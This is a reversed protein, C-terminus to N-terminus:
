RDTVRRVVSRQLPRASGADQRERLDGLLRDQRAQAAAEAARAAHHRQVVSHSGVGVAAILVAMAALAIMLSVGRRRAPQHLARKM